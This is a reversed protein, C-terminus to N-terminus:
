RLFTGVTSLLAGVWLAFIAPSNLLSSPASCEMSHRREREYYPRRPNIAFVPDTQSDFGAITVNMIREVYHVGEEDEDEDVENGDEDVRVQAAAFVAYLNKKYWDAKTSYWMPGDFVHMAFTDNKDTTQLHYTIRGYELTLQDKETANYKVEVDGFAYNRYTNVYDEMERSNPTQGVARPGTPMPKVHLKEMDDMLSCVTQSTVWSSGRLMYDLSAINMLVKAVFNKPKEDGLMAVYIGTRKDPIYTALTQYGPLSGDQSVFENGDYNGNIFGMSNMTRTYSTHIDPNRYGETMPDGDRGRPLIGQFIMELTEKKILQLNRDTAQGDSSLFVFWRYMDRATTCLASAPAVIELGDYVEFDLSRSQARYHVTGDAIKKGNRLDKTSAGAFFTDKMELPGLIYNRMLNQWSEGGLSRTVKDVLSFLVENHIYKERFSAVVPAYRLNKILQDQDYPQAFPVVDMGSLGTRMSFIDRLNLNKSRYMDPLYTRTDLIEEVPTDWTVNENKDILIGLLVASFARTGDGICFGHSTTARGQSYEHTIGQDRNLMFLSFGPTRTCRVIERAIGNLENEQKETLDAGDTFVSVLLLTLVGFAIFQSFDM